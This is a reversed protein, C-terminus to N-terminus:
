VYFSFTFLSFVVALFGVINKHLLGEKPCEKEEVTNPPNTLQSDDSFM